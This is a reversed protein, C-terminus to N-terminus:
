GWARALLSQSVESYDPDMRVQRNSKNSKTAYKTRRGLRMAEEARDQKKYFGLHGTLKTFAIWRKTKQDYSVGPIDSQPIRINALTITM